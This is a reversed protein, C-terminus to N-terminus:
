PIALRNTALGQAQAYVPLTSSSCTQVSGDALGVNGDSNHISKTWSLAPNTTTLTFLGPALPKRNLALHRDGSLFMQPYIDRADTGVFYSVNRDSFGSDFNTAFTKSKDAPCVLVKPMSLENSMVRFHVFAQGSSILELTGPGNTVSRPPGSPNPGALDNTLLGNTSICMPFADGNDLAWIRFALGVQKLNNVCGLKNSRHPARVIAPMLFCAVVVVTVIIVLLEILTFAVSGSRSPLAKVCYRDRKFQLITLSSTDRTSLDLAASSPRVGLRQVGVQAVAHRDRGAARSM